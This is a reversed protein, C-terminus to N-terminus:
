LVRAIIRNLRQAFPSPSEIEGGELLLAQELLLRSIDEFLGEDEVEALKSVITHRPNIELIPKM